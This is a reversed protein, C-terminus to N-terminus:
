ESSTRAPKLSSRLQDDIGIRAVTGMKLVGVEDQGMCAHKLRLHPLIARMGSYLHMSCM